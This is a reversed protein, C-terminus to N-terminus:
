CLEGKADAVTESMLGRRLELGAHLRGVFAECYDWHPVLGIAFVIDHSGLWRANAGRGVGRDCLQSPLMGVVDVGIMNSQGCDIAEECGAVEEGQIDGIPDPTRGRSSRDVRKERAM